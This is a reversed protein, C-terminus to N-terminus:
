VRYPGGFGAGRFANGLGGELLEALERRQREDLADHIRLLASTGAVRLEALAQDHRAFMADLAGQAFTDGGVARAVDGRATRAEDRFSRAKEVLQEVERRVVKEQAPSLDLRRLLWWMRRPRWGGGGGGRWGEEGHGYEDGPGYGWGHGHHHHHWRGHYGYGCHHRWHARRIAAFGILAAAGIALGIM